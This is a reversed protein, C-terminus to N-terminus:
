SVNYIWDPRRGVIVQETGSTTRESPNLGLYNFVLNWMQNQCFQGREKMSHQVTKVWHFLNLCRTKQQPWLDGFSRRPQRFAGHHGTFDSSRKMEQSKVQTGTASSGLFLLTKDKIGQKGTGSKLSFNVNSTHLWLVRLDNMLTWLNPPWQSTETNFEILVLKMFYQISHSELPHIDITYYSTCKFQKLVLNHM